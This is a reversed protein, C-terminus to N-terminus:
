ENGTARNSSVVRWVRTATITVFNILVIHVFICMYIHSHVKYIVIKNQRKVCENEAKQDKKHKKNKRRRKKRKMKLQTKTKNQTDNTHVACHTNRKTHGFLISYNGHERM